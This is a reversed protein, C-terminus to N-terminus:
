FDDSDILKLTVITVIAVNTFEQSHHSPQILM